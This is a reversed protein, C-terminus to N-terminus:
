FRKLSTLHKPRRLCMTLQWSTSRLSAFQMPHFSVSLHTALSDMQTRETFSRLFQLKQELEQPFEDLGQGPQQKVNALLHVIEENPRKLVFQWSYSSRQWVNSVWWHEELCHVVFFKNACGVQKSGWSGQSGHRLQSINKELAEVRTVMPNSLWCQLSIGTAHV